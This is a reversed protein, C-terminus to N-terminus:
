RRSRPLPLGVRHRWAAPWSARAPVRDGIKSDVVRVVHVACSVLHACRPRPPRCRHPRRVRCVSVVRRQGHSVSRGSVRTAIRRKRERLARAPSPRGTGPRRRQATTGPSPLARSRGRARQQVSFRAAMMHLEQTPPGRRACGRARLGRALSEAGRTVRSAFARATGCPAPTLHRVFFTRCPDGGLGGERPSTPAPREVYRPM